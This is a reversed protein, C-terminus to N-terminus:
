DINAIGWQGEKNKTFTFMISTNRIVNDSSKEAYRILVNIRVRDDIILKQIFEVDYFMYKNKEESFFLSDLTNPQYIYKNFNEKDQDVVAKLTSNLMNIIEDNFFSEKYQELNVVVQPKFNTKTIERFEKTSNDLLVQSEPENSKPSSPQEKNEDLIKVQNKQTSPQSTNLAKEMSCGSVLLSGFICVILIKCASAYM